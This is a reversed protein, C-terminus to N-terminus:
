ADKGEKSGFPPNILVADFLMPADQFLGGCIEVDTLTNGHWINLALGCIRTKLHTYVNHM